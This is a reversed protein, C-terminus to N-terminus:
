LCHFHSDNESSEDLMIKFARSWNRVPRKRRRKQPPRAPRKQRPTLRAFAADAESQAQINGNWRLQQKGAM